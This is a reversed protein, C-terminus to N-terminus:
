SRVAFRLLRRAPPKAVWILFMLAGLIRLIASLAFMSKFGFADALYGGAMPAIVGSAAIVLQYLATAEARASEPALDLLLNFSALGHGTWLIGAVANIVVLQWPSRAVLWALPILVIVFSLTGQMWTNGRRDVLRGLWRQTFIATFSAAANVWGVMTLTAGMDSVMYINLFPGVLQVGLNWILMCTVFGLFGPSSRIVQGLESLRRRERTQDAPAPDTIRSYSFTAAAGTVFALLFVLQYGAFPAAPRNGVHILWGALPVIGLSALNAALNRYSFYSGRIKRPVIDAVLATWAPNAFNNAFAIVANVAIIVTVAARPDRLVPPLIAWALLAIRAVGGFLVVVAKRRGGLLETARAGPLLAILGSLSAVATLQGIQANSAGFAVAFLAVFSGYFNASITAFLGDLWFWRLRKVAVDGAHATALRALNDDLPGALREFDLPRTFRNIKM